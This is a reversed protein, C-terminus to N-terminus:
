DHELKYFLDVTQETGSRSEVEVRENLRLRLLVAGEPNMLGQTYGLYLDPNLYKGLILSSDAIGGEGSEIRLEDLGFRESLSQLLPESRSLGLSIAAGAIDVGEGQGAQDIARGTLLYALAQADPLPPESYVRPRPQALPGSMALYAKVTGDRSERLARLDVDPNGPPGAFRLEGREVTLDQGYAEYRGDRLSIKGDVGTGRQDVYADLAGELGTTLGFGEFKVADGLEVRVRATLVPATSQAAAPADVGVIVEDASVDVTGAPLRDIVFSARPVRVSGELHYRGAGRLRLDPTIDVEAEPLRAVSFDSGGVHLDLALGDAHAPDLTGDLTLKGEGSRARARLRLPEGPVGRLTLAIDSLSIGTDPLRAAADRVKLIGDVSPKALSGGLEADLFLRGTVQQLGPIFGTVLALDPFEAALRGDLRRDGAREAGLNIRGRARGNDGLALRLEASGADDAFRGQIEADRFPIELPGEDTDFAVLGDGPTLTFTVRPRAVAGRLTVQGALVGEVRTDVPWLDDLSALALEALQADLDFGDRQQWGGRLCLSAPARALCLKDTGVATSGVRVGAPARLQWEGLTPLHVALAELTGRWEADGLGGNAQLSGTLQDGSAALSLRHAQRTGHLQATLQEFRQGGADLGDIQVTASGQTGGWDAQLALQAARTEAFSLDSGNLTARLAPVAPTGGVRAQGSLSGALGPYLAALDPADITVQMDLRQGASGDLSLRDGATSLVLQRALLTEDRWAVGGSAGVPYGRLSGQLALIDAEVRLGASADLGGQLALRADLRGPWAPDFLAPDLADGTVQLRWRPAPQWDVRGTAALQGEGLGLRAPALDFGNLDGTGHLSVEVSPLDAVQVEARLEARYADLTGTLSLRANRTAVGAQGRPPWDFAQWAANLAFSPSAAALDAQVDIQAVAPTALDVRLRPALATGSLAFTAAVPGLDAGSLSDDLQLGLQGALTHPAAAGMRLGGDLAAGPLALDLREVVLAHADWHLGLYLHDFSTVSDAQHLRAGEVALREVLLEVPLALDPVQPPATKATDSAALTVDLDDVELALVQVRQALLARPRWAIHLRAARIENGAVVLHLDHLTLRDLLSGRADGVSVTVGLRPGAETLRQVLWASGSESGLLALAGLPVALVVLLLIVLGRLIRRTM